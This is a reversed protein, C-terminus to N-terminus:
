SSKPSTVLKKSRQPIPDGRAACSFAFCRATLHIRQAALDKAILNPLTFRPFRVEGPTITLTRGGLLTYGTSPVYQYLTVRVKSLSRTGTNRIPVIATGGRISHGKTKIQYWITGLKLNMGPPLEPADM